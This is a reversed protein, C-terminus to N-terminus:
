PGLVRAMRVCDVAVGPTLVHRDRAGARWGRRAYFAEANLSACLTLQRHGARRATHELYALLASGIGRGTAEPLVYVAVIEGRGPDLEGFGVVADGREAVVMVHREMAHRYLDAALRGTWVAIEHDSYWGACLGRVSATHVHWVAEVDADVAARIRAPARHLVTM